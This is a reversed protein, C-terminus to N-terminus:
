ECEKKKKECYPYLQKPVGDEDIGQINDMDFAIVCGLLGMLVIEFHYSVLGAFCLIVSFVITFVPFGYHTHDRTKRLLCKVYGKTAPEHDPNEEAKGCFKGDKRRAQTM